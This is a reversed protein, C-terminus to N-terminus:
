AGLRKIRGVVKVDAPPLPYDDIEDPKCWVHDAVGLHQVDGKELTCDYFLLLVDKTPYRHFTVDLIDRVEIDIGCEERCERALAAEPAEGDELKGGPFEWMGELHSGKMRRTLLVRGERRVVAAVVVITAM